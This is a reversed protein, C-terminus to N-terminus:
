EKLITNQTKFYKFSRFFWSTWRNIRWGNVTTWLDFFFFPM